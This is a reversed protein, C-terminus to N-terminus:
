MKVEGTQGRYDVENFTAGSHCVKRFPCWKCHDSSPNDSIRVPLYGDKLADETQSIKLYMPAVFEPILGVLYEKQRQNNKANYLAIGQRVEGIETGWQLDIGYKTLIHMYLNMQYVHEQKASQLEDFTVAKPNTSGDRNKITKLELLKRKGDENLIGDAHGRINYVPDVVPVELYHLDYWIEKKGGCSPCTRPSIGWWIHKCEVCHWKGELIGMDWFYAQMQYGSHHGVDFIKRSVSSVNNSNGTPTKLWLYTLRRVCDTTSLSSPHWVGTERDQPVGTFKNGNLQLLYRDLKSTIGEPKEQRFTQLLNKLAMDIGEMKIENHIPPVSPPNIGETGIIVDIAWM